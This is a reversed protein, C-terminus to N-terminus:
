YRLPYKGEGCQDGQSHGSGKQYEQYEAKIHVQAGGPLLDLIAIGPYQRECQQHV